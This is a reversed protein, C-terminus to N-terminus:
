RNMNITIYVFNFKQNFYHHLNHRPLPLKDGLVLAELLSDHISCGNCVLWKATEAIIVFFDLLLKFFSFGHSLCVKDFKFQTAM